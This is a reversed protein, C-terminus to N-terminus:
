TSIKNIEKALEVFTEKDPSILLRHMSAFSFRNFLRNIGQTTNTRLIPTNTLNLEPSDGNSYPFIHIGYDKSLPYFLGDSKSYDWLPNAMVKDENHILLFGPNDTTIWYFDKPCKMIEWRRVIVFNIFEELNSQLTEEDAFQKLHQEKAIMDLDLNDGTPYELDPYVKKMWIKIDLVKRLVFRKQATRQISTFMWNILKLKVDWDNIEKDEKILTILGNYYSEISKGFLEELATPKNFQVSNYFKKEWFMRDGSNKIQIEKRFEDQNDIVIIGKGDENLSFHKLYTEPVIHQKNYKKSM